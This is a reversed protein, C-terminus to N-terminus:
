CTTEWAANCVIVTEPRLMKSGSPSLWVDGNCAACGQHRRAGIIWAPRSANSAFMLHMDSHLRDGLLKQLRATLAEKGAEEPACYRSGFDRVVVDDYDDGSM